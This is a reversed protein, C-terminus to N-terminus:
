WRRECVLGSFIDRHVHQSLMWSGVKWIGSPPRRVELLVQICGPGHCRGKNRSLQSFKSALIRPRISSSPGCFPSWGSGPSNQALASDIHLPCSSLSSRSHNKVGSAGDFLRERRQVQKSGGTQDLNDAFIEEISSASFRPILTFRM